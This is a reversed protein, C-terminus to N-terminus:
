TQLPTDNGKLFLIRYGDTDEVNVHIKTSKILSSAWDKNKELTVVLLRVKMVNAVM